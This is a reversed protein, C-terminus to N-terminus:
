ILKKLDIFNTGITMIPKIKTVKDLTIKEKVRKLYEILKQKLNTDTLENINTILYQDM